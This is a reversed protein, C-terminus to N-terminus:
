VKLIAAGHLIVIDSSLLITQDNSGNGDDDAKSKDESHEVLFFSTLQPVLHPIECVDCSGVKSNFEDDRLFGPELPLPFLGSVVVRAIEFFIEDFLDLRLNFFFVELVNIGIHFLLVKFFGVFFILTVCFCLNILDLDIYNM